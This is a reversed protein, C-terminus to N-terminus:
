YQSDSYQNRSPSAVCRATEFFILITRFAKEGFIRVSENGM